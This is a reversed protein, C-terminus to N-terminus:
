RSPLYVKNREEHAGPRADDAGSIFLANRLYDDGALFRVVLSPLPGLAEEDSQLRSHGGLVLSEGGDVQGFVLGGDLLELDRALPM